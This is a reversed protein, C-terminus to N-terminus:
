KVATITIYDIRCRMKGGTIFDVRVEDGRNLRVIQAIEHTTLENVAESAIWKDIMRNNVSVAITAAGKQENYFTVSLRCEAADEGAWVGTLSGPGDDGVTVLGESASFWSGDETFAIGSLAMRETENRGEKLYSIPSSFSWLEGDVVSGDRKVADVRWYYTKGASLREPLFETKDTSGVFKLKDSESGIYINYESADFAPSWKLTLPRCFADGTVAEYLKVNDAGHGPVPNSASAAATTFRVISVDNYDWGRIRCYSEM